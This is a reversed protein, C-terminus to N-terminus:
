GHTLYSLTLLGIGVAAPAVAWAWRNGHTAPAIRAGYGFLSGIGLANSVCLAVM